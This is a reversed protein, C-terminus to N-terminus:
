DMKNPLNNFLNEWASGALKEDGIADYIRFPDGVVESDKYYLGMEEPVRIFGLGNQNVLQDSGHGFMKHSNGERLGIKVEMMNNLLMDNGSLLQSVNLYNYGYVMVHVGYSPGTAILEHLKQLNTKEVPGGFSISSARAISFNVMDSKLDLIVYLVEPESDSQVENKVRKELIEYVENLMEKLNGNTGHRVIGSGNDLFSLKGFTPEASRQLDSIYVKCGVTSRYAEMMQLITMGAIRLASPRDTGVIAVNNQSDRHFQFKVHEKRYFAPAGLWIDVPMGYTDERAEFMKKNDALPVKLENDDYILRELPDIGGNKKMWIENIKQVYVPLEKVEDIFPTQFEENGDEAGEEDTNIITRGVGKLRAAGPNGILRTSDAPRCILSLRIGVQNFKVEQPPEQSCLIIFLGQSRGRRHIDEILRQAKSSIEDRIMFLCQFEDIIMCHYPMIPLGERKAKENYQELSMVGNRRFISNRKDIEKQFLDLLSEAYHRDSSASLAAIHPLKKYGVFSVGGKMDALYFRLQEPSYRLASNLILNHLLISKGSGSKGGISIHPSTGKFPIDLIKKEVASEFGIPVYLHGKKENTNDEWLIGSDLMRNIDEKFSMTVKQPENNRVYKIVEDAVRMPAKPEICLESTENYRASPEFKQSMSLLRQLSRVNDSYYNNASDKLVEQDYTYFIFIGAKTANGYNVLETLRDIQSRETLVNTIDRIFVFNYSKCMLENHQNYSYLDPYNRCCTRINDDMVDKLEALMTDKDEKYTTIYHFYPKEADIDDVDTSIPSLVNFDGSTNADLLYVNSDSLTYSSIARLAFNFLMYAYESHCEIATASYKMFEYIHPFLIKDTKSYNQVTESGYMFGKPTMARNPSNKEASFNDLAVHVNGTTEFYSEVDKKLKKFSTDHTRIQTEKANELNTRLQNIGKDFRM